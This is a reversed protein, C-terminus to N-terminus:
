HIHKLSRGVVCRRAPPATLPIITYIEVGMITRHRDIVVAREGRYDVFSDLKYTWNATYVRRRRGILGRPLLSRESHTYTDM